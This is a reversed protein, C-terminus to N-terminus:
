TGLRHAQAQDTFLPQQETNDPGQKGPADAGGPAPIAAAGFNASEAMSHKFERRGQRLDAIVKIFIPCKGQLYSEILISM